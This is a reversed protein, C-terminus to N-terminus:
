KNKKNPPYHYHNIDEFTFLGPEDLMEHHYIEEETMNEDENFYDNKIEEALREKLVKEEYSMKEDGNMTKKTKGCKKTNQM